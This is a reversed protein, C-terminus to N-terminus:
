DLSGVSLSERIIPPVFGRNVLNAVSVVSVGSTFDCLMVESFDNSSFSGRAFDHSVLENGDQLM